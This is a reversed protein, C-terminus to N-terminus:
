GSVFERIRGLGKKLNEMSTAYSIRIHGEMGFASGPVTAVRAQDILQKSFEVSNECGLNQMCRRVNPFAYFAGYPRPCSMGPMSNLEDLVFLRRSAYEDLMHQVVQPPLALASLAAKQSISCPNGCEHSQLSVVKKILDKHAIMYGLRWGTMSYTKSFSGCVAWGHEDADMHSAVSAFPHNEFTFRDYTEDSLLFIGRRRCVEVVGKLKGDPIVAGSPNNPSNIILGASGENVHAQLDEADLVFGKDELTPFFVPESEALKVVEPFTVWYPAPILVEDGEEFVALCLSYIANKAGAATLVNEATLRCGFDRNYREAIAERLEDTGAVATYRTFDERIAAMAGEKVAEPTPFDPEGPGFDIIDVGEKRLRKALQMVAITPSTSIKSMRQALKM